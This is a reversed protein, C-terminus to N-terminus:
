RANDWGERERGRRRYMWLLTGKVQARPGTPVGPVVVIKARNYFKKVILPKGGLKLKLM